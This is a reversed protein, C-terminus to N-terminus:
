KRRKKKLQMGTNSLLEVDEDNNPAKQQGRQRNGFSTLCLQARGAVGIGSHSIFNSKRSFQALTEYVDTQNRIKFYCLM